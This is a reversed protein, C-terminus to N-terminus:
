PIPTTISAAEIQTTGLSTTVVVEINFTQGCTGTLEVSNSYGLTSTPGTDDMIEGDVSMVVSTINIGDPGSLGASYSVTLTSNCGTDNSFSEATAEIPVTLTVLEMLTVERSGLYSEMFTDALWQQDAAGAGQMFFLLEGAQATTSEPAAPYDPNPQLKGDMFGIYKQPSIEETEGQQGAETGLIEGLEKAIDAFDAATPEPPPVPDPTTTAPPIIVTSPEPTIIIADPNETKPTPAAIPLKCQATGTVSVNPGDTTVIDMGVTVRLMNKFLEWYGTDVGVGIQAFYKGTGASQCEYIPLPDLITSEGPGLSFKEPEEPGISEVSLYGEYYTYVLEYTRSESLNYVTIIPTWSEGVAKEVSEPVMASAIDTAHVVAESFHSTEGTILIKGTDVDVETTVNNLIDWSGEGSKTFVLCAPYTGEPLGRDKLDNADLSLTVTVPKSFAVDGANLMFVPGVPELAKVDEAWEEKPVISAQIITDAPFADPPVEITIRGDNDSVTGGDAAKIGQEVIIKGPTSNEM